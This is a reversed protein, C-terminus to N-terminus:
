KWYVVEHIRPQDITAGRVAASDRELNAIMEGRVKAYSDYSAQDRWLTVAMGDSGDAPAIAIIGECGDMARTKDASANVLEREEDVRSRDMNMIRTVAVITM